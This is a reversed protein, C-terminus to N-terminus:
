VDTDELTPYGITIRLKNRAYIHLSSKKAKELFDRNDAGRFESIDIGDDSSSSVGQGRRIGQTQALVQSRISEPM